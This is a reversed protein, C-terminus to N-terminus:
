AGCGRGKIPRRLCLFGCQPNFSSQLFPVGSETASRLCLFGCQPNFCTLACADTTHRYAEFVFFDASRISVLWSGELAQGSARSRLCLFGCQPNFGWKQDDQHGPLPSKSSLSIRVASQFVRSTARQRAIWLSRLCLFGCQLTPSLVVCRRRQRSSSGSCLSPKNVCTRAYASPVCPHFRAPPSPLPSCRLCRWWM